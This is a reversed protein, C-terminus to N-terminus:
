KKKWILTNAHCGLSLLLDLHWTLMKDNGADCRTIWCDTKTILKIVHWPWLEPSTEVLAILAFTCWSKFKHYICIPFCSLASHPLYWSTRQEQQYTVMDDQIKYSFHLSRMSIFLWTGTVESIYPYTNSQCMPM